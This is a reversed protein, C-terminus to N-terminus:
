GGVLKNILEVVARYRPETLKHPIAETRLM